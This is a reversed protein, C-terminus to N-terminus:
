QLVLPQRRVASRSVPLCRISTTAAPIPTFSASKSIGGRSSISAPVLTSARFMSPYTVTMPALRKSPLQSLLTSPVTASVASLSSLTSPKNTASMLKDMRSCEKSCYAAGLDMVHKECFLCWDSDMTTNTTTTTTTTTTSTSSSPSQQQQQKNSISKSPLIFRFLAYAFKLDFLMKRNDASGNDLSYESHGVGLEHHKYISRKRFLSATLSIGKSGAPQEAAVVEVPMMESLVGECRLASETSGECPQETSGYVHLLYKGPVLSEPVVFDSAVANGEWESRATTSITGVGSDFGEETMLHVKAWRLLAMGNYHVAFQVQVNEGAVLQTNPTPTIFELTDAQSTAVFVGAGLIIGSFLTRTFPFHM